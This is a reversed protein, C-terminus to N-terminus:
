RFYGGDKKPMRSSSGEVKGGRLAVTTVRRSEIGCEPKDM